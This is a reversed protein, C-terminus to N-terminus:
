CEYTDNKLSILEGALQAARAHARLASPGALQAVRAAREAWFFM